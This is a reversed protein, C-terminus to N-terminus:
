APHTSLGMRSIRHAGGLARGTHPVMRRAEVQVGSRGRACRVARFGYPAIVRLRRAGSLDDATEVVLRKGFNLPPFLSGIAMERAHDTRRRECGASLPGM